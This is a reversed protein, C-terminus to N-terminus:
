SSGFWLCFLVWRFSGIEFGVLRKFYDFYFDTMRM